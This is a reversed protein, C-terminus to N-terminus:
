RQAVASFRFTRGDDLPTGFCTRDWWDLDVWCQYRTSGNSLTLDVRAISGAGFGVRLRGNGQSDLPVPLTTVTNDRRVVLLRAAGGMAAPPADVTVVLFWRGTLTSGPRFEYHRSTLHALTTQQGTVSRASRTLRWARSVPSRYAAWSAGEEYFKQPVLNVSAFGAYFARFTTGKSALVRAIGAISYEDPAGPRADLRGWITRVVGVGYQQSLREFFTWNGYQAGTQAFTDLPTSPRAMHSAPLYQRNDNAQDAFREEMWTATAEMVWPDEQFDYNFQIAHFFEHAATVTLSAQPTAPYGVYDDDLVCYGSARLEEGPVYAEPACYGYLGAPTLNVLYVDFAESGGPDNGPGADSAPPRYGLTATQFTWAREMVSLTADVQDPIGNPAGDPVLDAEPPADDTEAVYHVCVHAGCSPPAESTTYGHGAPDSQGDTPRALLRDAAERDAQGLRPYAARLAALALTADGGHGALADRAREVASGAQDSAPTPLAPRDAHGAAGLPALVVAIVAIPLLGVRRQRAM